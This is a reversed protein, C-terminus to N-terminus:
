SNIFTLETHILNPNEHFARVNARGFFALHYTSGSPGEVAFSYGFLAWIHINFNGGKCHAFLEIICKFKYFTYSPISSAEM